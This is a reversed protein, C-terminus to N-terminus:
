GKDLSLVVMIEFAPLQIKRSYQTKLLLDPSKRLPLLIVKQKNVSQDRIIPHLYKALTNIM